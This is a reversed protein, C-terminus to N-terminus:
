LVLPSAQVREGSFLKGNQVNSALVAIDAIAKNPRSHNADVLIVRRIGSYDSPKQRLFVKREGQTATTARNSNPEARNDLGSYLRHALMYAVTLQTIGLSHLCGSQYLGPIQHLSSRYM